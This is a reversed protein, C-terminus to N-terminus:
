QAVHMVPRPFRWILVAVFIIPLFAASTVQTLTVVGTGLYFITAIWDVVQIGIMLGIWSQHRTPNHAAIFMGIGFAWFRAGMQAFLWYVWEPTTSLDLSAIFQSPFITFATGLIVQVVGIFRLMTRLLM